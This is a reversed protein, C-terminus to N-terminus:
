VQITLTFWGILIVDIWALLGLFPLSLNTM